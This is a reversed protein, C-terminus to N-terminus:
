EHALAEEVEASISAATTNSGWQIQPPGAWKAFVIEGTRPVKFQFVEDPHDDYHRRAWDGIAGNADRWELRFRRPHLTADPRHHRPLRGITSQLVVTEDLVQVVAPTPIGDRPTTTPM